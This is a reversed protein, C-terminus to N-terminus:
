IGLDTTGGLLLLFRQFNVLRREIILQVNYYEGWQSTLHFHSNMVATQSLIEEMQLRQVIVFPCQFTIILSLLFVIKENM